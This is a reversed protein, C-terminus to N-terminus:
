GAAARRRPARQRATAPRPKWCDDLFDAIENTLRRPAIRMEFLSTAQLLRGAPLEAALMEADSFPHIGDRGHGIVLTPMEFTQRETRHPAIRGFFLGQILAGGPAPDQTIWEVGLDALAPVRGRLLKAPATALRWVPAGVTLGVMLPTFALACGILAHDLVPMEIVLGRVRGPAHSAAELAANAGLSTGQVVAEDVGLEDLLAVIQRGFASMSYEWMDTPRDSRGHGLLDVTVVRNGRRALARALPVHMRQNFLLGHVLVVTRPGEGYETYALEYGEYRFTGEHM